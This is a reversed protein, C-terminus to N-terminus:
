GRRPKRATTNSASTTGEQDRRTRASRLLKRIPQDLTTSYAVCMSFTMAWSLRAHECYAFVGTLVIMGVLIEAATANGDTVTDEPALAMLYLLGVGSVINWIPFIAWWNWEPELLETGCVIGAIGNAAMAFAGMWTKEVATKPKTSFTHYVSLGLGGIFVGAWILFYGSGREGPATVLGAIQHRLESDVVFLAVSTASMLFLAVEDYSPKVWQLIGNGGSHRVPEDNMEKHYLM